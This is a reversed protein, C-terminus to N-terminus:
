RRCKVIGESTWVANLRARPCCMPNFDKIFICFFYKVVINEYSASTKLISPGMDYESDWCFIAFSCCMIKKGRLKNSMKIQDVNNNEVLFTEIPFWFLGYFLLVYMYSDIKGFLKWKVTSVFFYNRCQNSYGMFRTFFM